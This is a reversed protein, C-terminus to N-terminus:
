FEKTLWFTYVFTGNDDKDIYPRSGLALHEEQFYANAIDSIWMVIDYEGAERNGVSCLRDQKLRPNRCKATVQYDGPPVSEIQVDKFFVKMIARFRKAKIKGRIGYLKKTVTHKM